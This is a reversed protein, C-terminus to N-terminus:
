ERALYACVEDLGPAPDMLDLTPWQGVVNLIEGTSLNFTLQGAELWLKGLGPVFAGSNRGLLTVIVEGDDTFSFHSNFLLDMTISNGGASWTWVFPGRPLIMVRSFAGDEDFWQMRTVPAKQTVTVPFGCAEEDVFEFNFDLVERNPPDAAAPLAAMSVFLLGVMLVLVVRQVRVFAM